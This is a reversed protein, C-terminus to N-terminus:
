HKRYVDFEYISWHYMANTGTQTLRIYRATQAAFTITTIGLQGAGTAVPIEWTTGDNSVSVFYRHSARHRNGSRRARSFLVGAHISGLGLAVKPYHRHWWDGFVLPGLAIMGLLLIFPLVMWPNVVYNGM